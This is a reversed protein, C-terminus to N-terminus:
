WKRGRGPPISVGGEEEDTTDYMDDYKVDLAPRWVRLFRNERTGTSSLSELDDSETWYLDSHPDQTSPPSTTYQETEANSVGSKSPTLDFPKQEMSSNHIHAKPTDTDGSHSASSKPSQTSPSHASPTTTTHERAKPHPGRGESATTYVSDSDTSPRHATLGDLATISTDNDTSTTNYTTRLM